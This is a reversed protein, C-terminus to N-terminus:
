RAADDMNASLADLHRATRRRALARDGAKIADAIGVHARRVLKPIEEREQDTLEHAQHFRTLRILVLALLELAQNRTLTAVTIHLDHISMEDAVAHEELQAAEDLAAVADDDLRDIALDALAVEFQIRLEALADLSTRHRALYLAVVDAVAAVSPPTVFLGGRPGRKM